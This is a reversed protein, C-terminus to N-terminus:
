KWSWSYGIVDDYKGRHIFLKTLSRDPGASGNPLRTTTQENGDLSDILNECEVETKNYRCRECNEMSLRTNKKHNHPIEEFAHEKGFREDILKDRLAPPIPKDRLRKIMEDYTETKKELKEIDKEFDVRIKAAKTKDKLPYSM